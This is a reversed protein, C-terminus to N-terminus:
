KMVYVKSGLDIDDLPVNSVLIKLGSHSSKAVMGIPHPTQDEQQNVYTWHTIGEVRSTATPHAFAIYGDDKKHLMGALWFHSMNGFASRANINNTVLIFGKEQEPLADKVSIWKM